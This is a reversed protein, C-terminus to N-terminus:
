EAKARARECTKPDVREEMTWAQNPDEVVVELFAATFSVDAARPPANVVSRTRATYAAVLARLTGPDGVGKTAFNPPADGELPPWDMDEHTGVAVIRDALGLPPAVWGLPMAATQGGATFSRDQDILYVAGNSQLYLVALNLPASPAGDARVEATIATCMPVTVRSVSGKTGAFLARAVPKEGRVEQSTATRLGVRLIPQPYAPSPASTLALIAAQRAHLGLTRAVAKADTPPLHNRTDGFADVVDVGGDAASRLM